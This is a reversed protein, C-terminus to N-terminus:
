YRGSDEQYSTAFDIPFTTRENSIYGLTVDFCDRYHLLLKM